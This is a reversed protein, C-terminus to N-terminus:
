PVGHQYRGLALHHFAYSCDESSAKGLLSRITLGYWIWFHDFAPYFLRTESNHFTVSIASIDTYFYQFTPTFLTISCATIGSLTTKKHLQCSSRYEFCGWIIYDETTTRFLLKKHWNWVNYTSFKDRKVSKEQPLIKFSLNARHLSISM